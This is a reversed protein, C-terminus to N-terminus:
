INNLCLKAGSWAHRYSVGSISECYTIWEMSKNSYNRLSRCGNVPVRGISNPKLHPTHLVNMCACASTCSQFPYIGADTIFTNRFKVCGPKLLQVVAKCDEHIEKTFDFVDNEHANHWEILQTCLSEKMTGYFLWHHLM